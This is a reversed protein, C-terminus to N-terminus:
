DRGVRTSPCVRFTYLKKPIIKFHFEKITLQKPSIYCYIKKGKDSPSHYNTSLLRAEFHMNHNRKSVAKDVANLEQDSIKQFCFEHKFLTCM